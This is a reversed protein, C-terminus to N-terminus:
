PIRAHDVEAAFCWHTWCLFAIGNGIVLIRHLATEYRTCGRHYRTEDTAILGAIALALVLVPILLVRPRAAVSAWGLLVLLPAALGMALLECSREPPPIRRHGRRHYTWDLLGAITALTGAGAIGLAQAPWSALTGAWAYRPDGHVLWLGIPFLFAPLLLALLTM